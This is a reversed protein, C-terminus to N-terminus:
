VKERSDRFTGWYMHSSLPSICSHGGGIPLLPFLLAALSVSAKDLAQLLIFIFPQQLHAILYIYVFVTAM